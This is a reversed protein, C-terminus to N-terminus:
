QGGEQLKRQPKQVQSYDERQSTEQSIALPIYSGICSRGAPYTATEFVQFSALNSPHSDHKNAPHHHLDQMGRQAGGRYSVNSQTLKM